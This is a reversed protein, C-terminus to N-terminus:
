EAEESSYRQIIEKTHAVESQLQQTEIQLDKVLQTFDNKMEVLMEVSLDDFNITLAEKESLRSNIFIM